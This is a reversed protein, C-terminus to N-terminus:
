EITFLDEPLKIKKKRPYWHEIEFRYLEATHFDHDYGAITVYIYEGDVSDIIGQCGDFADTGDKIRVLDGKSYKM